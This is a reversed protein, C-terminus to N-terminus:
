FAFGANFRLTPAVGSRGAKVSSTESNAEADIDIYAVGGGASLVFSEDFLFTYGIEAGASYGLGSGSAEDIQVEAYALQARPGIWFGEPAHGLMFFRAGLGGTVAFYSADDPIDVGLGEFLLAGATVNFALFSAVAHEYEFSVTGVLLELPAWTLTNQPPAQEISEIYVPQSVTQSSPYALAQSTDEDAETWGRETQGLAASPVLVVILVVQLVRYTM